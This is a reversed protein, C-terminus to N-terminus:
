RLIKEVVAYWQPYRTQLETPDIVYAAFCEAFAEEGNTEGYPLNNWIDILQSLGSLGISHFLAWHGLEHAFMSEQINSTHTFFKDYIIIRRAQCEAEQTGGFKSVPM